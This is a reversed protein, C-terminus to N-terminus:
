QARRAENKSKEKLRMKEIELEGQKLLIKQDYARESELEDRNFEATEENESSNSLAGASLMLLLVSLKFYRM